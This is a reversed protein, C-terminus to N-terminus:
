MDGVPQQSLHIVRFSFLYVRIAIFRPLLRFDTYEVVDFFKVISLAVM